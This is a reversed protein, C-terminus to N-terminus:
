TGVIEGWRRMAASKIDDQMAHRQQEQHALLRELLRIDPQPVTTWQPVAPITQLMSTEEPPLMTPSPIASTVM